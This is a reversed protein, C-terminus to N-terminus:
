NKYLCCGSTTPANLLTCIWKKDIAITLVISGFHMVASRRTLEGAFVCWSKNFTIFYVNILPNEQSNNNPLSTPIGSREM